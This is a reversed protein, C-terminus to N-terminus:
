MACLLLFLQSLSQTQNTVVVVVVVVMLHRGQVFYVSQSVSQSVSEGPNEEISARVVDLKGGSCAFFFEKSAIIANGSNNNNNNNNNNNEQESSNADVGLAHPLTLVLVVLSCRIAWLCLHDVKDMRRRSPVLHELIMGLFLLM